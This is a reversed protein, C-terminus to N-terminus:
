LLTKWNTVGPPLAGILYSMYTNSIIESNKDNSASVLLAETLNVGNQFNATSKLPNTPSIDFGQFRVRITIEVTGTNEIELRYYVTDGPVRNQTAISTTTDYEVGDPSVELGAAADVNVVTQTIPDIKVFTELAIWAFTAAVFLLISGAFALISLTMKNRFM